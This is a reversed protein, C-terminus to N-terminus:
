FVPEEWGPWGDDFLVTEVERIGVNKLPPARQKEQSGAASRGTTAPSYLKLPELIKRIVKHQYIFSILKMEGACKPCTLPDVEWVKKICARWLLHPIRRPQYGKIETVKDDAGQGSSDKKGLEKRRKRDGRM